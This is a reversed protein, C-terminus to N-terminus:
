SAVLSQLRIWFYEDFQIQEYRSNKEVWTLHWHLMKWNKLQKRRFFEISCHISLHLNLVLRDLHYWDVMNQHRWIQNLRNSQSYRMRLSIKMNVQGFYHAYLKETNTLNNFAATCELDEIPQSNPLTFHTKDISAEAMTKSRKIVQHFLRNNKFLKIM